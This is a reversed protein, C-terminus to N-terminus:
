IVTTQSEVMGILKVLRNFVIVLSNVTDISCVRFIEEVSAIDVQALLLELFSMSIEVLCNLSLFILCLEMM